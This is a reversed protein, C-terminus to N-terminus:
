QCEKEKRHPKKYYDGVISKPTMDIRSMQALMSEVNGLQAVPWYFDQEHKKRYSVNVGETPDKKPKTDFTGLFTIVVGHPTQQTKIKYGDLKAIVLFYNRVAKATDRIGLTLTKSEGVSLSALHERVEDAKM